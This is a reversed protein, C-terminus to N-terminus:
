NINKKYNKLESVKESVEDTIQTGGNQYWYSVFQDFEDISGEGCIIRIYVQKEEEKLRWWRSKM